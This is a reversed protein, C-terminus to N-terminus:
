ENGVAAYARRAPVQVVRDDEAIWASLSNGWVCGSDLGRLRDKVLLGQAAWHGFVVTREGHRAPRYFEHWPRYPQGPPRDDREPVNGREDCYRTRVAFLGRPGPAGEGERADQGRQELVVGPRRAVGRAEEEEVALVGLSQHLDAAAVGLRRM